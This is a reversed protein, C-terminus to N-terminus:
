DDFKIQSALHPRTKPQMAMLVQRAYSSDLLGAERLKAEIRVRRDKLITDASFSYVERFLRVLGPEEEPDKQLKLTSV